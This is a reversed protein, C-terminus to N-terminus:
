EKIVLSMGPRLGEFKELPRAKVEFTKLDYQGNAKTAKWVAYAGEDKIYFVKMKLEKNFAPSYATFIDGVKLGKLQDERVNFTGWMDEMVSISMIPSGTGVLEGVKPYVSSVEGAIQAVQVTEHIYSNVEQVAGKARNVQAQAALKEERRAGNKAMEYQSQAAKEQAELAKYNALAEDRKQASMVGEDYLRQVREYSKHAIELGAKAQQWIQYAASVQEQRAGAQAMQSMASAADEASMAQAKKAEVEPADLIALTDGVRVFDGEKVRLELIRGPVKSSVRYETVEVEGQIIEPSRDLAFFGIVAVIVVVTTFGIVALLINNHQTKASM